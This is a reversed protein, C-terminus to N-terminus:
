VLPLAVTFQSGEGQKSEVKIEGGHAKVIDYALSLGLGTGQGTPKTTFFPQFIKDVISQSIGNGNDSVSIAISGNIKKTQVSVTPKYNEGATKKKENVAYFANNFLNLLVRGIDQPVINIKDNTEDFDTEIEANFEKEKARFGHYALRLYEDALKKIDAPEKIGKSTKSHQLMGKVIADARKGHHNIKEENDKIDILINRVDTLNGKNLEETAEAVMEKNVESFNNVFNLPNQIEHAIGATLEGLSAMKESQILQAQTSKLETLTQEVNKKQEGIEEKQKQLLENAKKRNRNNRYLLFAILMFVVIGALMGYTRIKNQTETKENELARVKLLEEFGINQFQKIKELNNLSDKAAMAFEHYKLASDVNNRLKYISSLSTYANVLIDPSGTSQAIELGKKAYWLSSDKDGVVSFLNGLSLFTRALSSLNNQQQCVQVSEAFYQKSLVYNRKKFYINGINYLMSGKNKQFGSIDSYHIAKQAFSLASDLKNLKLYTTSLNLNADSLLIYHNISEGIKVAQYLHSLAEEINGTSIYLTAIDQHTFGLVNLRATRPDREKSFVSIRWINKETENDELIKLVELFVQLSRPYNKLYGLVFGMNELADAEWLKLKLQRALAAQQETFYLSSDWNRGQYYLGLSRAAGMRLTDNTTNHWILQLSAAQEKNNAVEFDFDQQATSFGPLFLLV